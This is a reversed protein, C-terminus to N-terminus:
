EPIRQVYDDALNDVNNYPDIWVVPHFMDAVNMDSILGNFLYPPTDPAYPVGGLQHQAPNVLSTLVTQRSIINASNCIAHAM